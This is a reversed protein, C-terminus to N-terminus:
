QKRELKVATVLLIADLGSLKSIHMEVKVFASRSIPQVFNGEKFLPFGKFIYSSVGNRKKM